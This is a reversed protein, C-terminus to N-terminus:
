CTAADGTVLRAGGAEDRHLPSQARLEALRPYPDRRADPNAATFDLIGFPNSGSDAL